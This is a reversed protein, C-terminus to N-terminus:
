TQWVVRWRSSCCGIGTAIRSTSWSAKARATRRHDRARVPRWARTSYVVVRLSYIL